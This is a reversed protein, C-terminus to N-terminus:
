MFIAANKVRECTCMISASYDAEKKQQKEGYIIGDPIIRIIYWFYILRYLIGLIVAGCFM